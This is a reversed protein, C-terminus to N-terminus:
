REPDDQEAAEALSTLSRRNALEPPLASIELLGLKAVQTDKIDVPRRRISWGPLRRILKVLGVLPAMILFERIAIKFNFWQFLTSFFTVSDNSKRV